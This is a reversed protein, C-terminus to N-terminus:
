KKKAEKINMKQFFLAISNVTQKKRITLNVKEAKFYDRLFEELEEKTCKLKLNM